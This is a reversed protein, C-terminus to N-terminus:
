LCINELPMKFVKGNYASPQDEVSIFCYRSHNNRLYQTKRLSNELLSM